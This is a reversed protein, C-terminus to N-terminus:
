DEKSLFIKLDILLSKVIGLISKKTGLVNIIESNSRTTNLWQTYISQKKQRLLMTEIQDKAEEYSIERIPSVSMVTVTLNDNGIRYPGLTAGVKEKFADVAILKNWREELEDKTYLSSETHNQIETKINRTEPYKFDSRNKNFFGKAELETVQVNSTVSEKLEWAILSNKINERSEELTLGMKKLKENIEEKNGLQNLQHDILEESITIGQERGKQLVILDNSYRYLASNKDTVFGFKADSTFKKVFSDYRLIQHNVIVSIPNYKTAILFFLIFLVILNAISITLKYNVKM